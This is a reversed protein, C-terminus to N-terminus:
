SGFVAQFATKVKKHVFLKRIERANKERQLNEIFSAVGLEQVLPDDSVFLTEVFAVCRNLLEKKTTDTKTQQFVDIFFRTFDGMLVHSLVEDNDHIHEDLLPKFEPILQILTNPFTSYTLTM